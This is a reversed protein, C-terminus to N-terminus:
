RLRPVMVMIQVVSAPTEDDRVTVAAVQVNSTANLEDVSSRLHEALVVDEINDVHQSFEDDATSRNGVPDLEGGGGALQQQM